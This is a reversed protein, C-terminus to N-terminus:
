REGHNELSTVVEFKVIMYSLLLSSLRLYSNITIEYSFTWKNVVKQLDMILKGSEM